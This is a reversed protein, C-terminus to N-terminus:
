PTRDHFAFPPQSYVLTVYLHEAAARLLTLRLQWVFHSVVPTASRRTLTHDTSMLLSSVLSLWRCDSAAVKVHRM